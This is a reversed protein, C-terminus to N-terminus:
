GLMALEHAEMSRLAALGQQVSQAIRASDSRIRALDEELREEYHTM